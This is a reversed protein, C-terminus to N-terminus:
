CEVDLPKTFFGFGRIQAQTLCPRVTQRKEPKCTARHQMLLTAGAGFWCKWKGAPRRAASSWLRPFIEVEEKYLKDPRINTGEGSTVTM